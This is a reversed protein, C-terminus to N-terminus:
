NQRFPATAFPSYDIDGQINDSPDMDGWWNNEANLSPPGWGGAVKVTAGSNFNNEHITSSNNSAIVAVMTGTADFINQQILSDPAGADLAFVETQFSTPSVTGIFTNNLFDVKDTPKNSDFANVKAIDPSNNGELINNQILNNNQANDTLFALQGSGAVIQNYRIITNHVQEFQRVAATGRTNGVGHILFGEVIVNPATIYVTGSANLDQGNIITKDAGRGSLQVSKNIVVDENYIGVSVCIIDGNQAADVASQISAYQTPVNIDCQPKSVQRYEKLYAGVTIPKAAFVPQTFFPLLLLALFIRLRMILIIDSKHLFQVRTVVRIFTRM